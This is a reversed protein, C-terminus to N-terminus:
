QQLTTHCQQTTNPMQDQTVTCVDWLTVRHSTSTLCNLSKVQRKIELQWKKEKHPITSVSQAMTISERQCGAEVKKIRFGKVENTQQIKLPRILNSLHAANQVSESLKWCDSLQKFIQKRFLMLLASSIDLAYFPAHTVYKFGCRMFGKM